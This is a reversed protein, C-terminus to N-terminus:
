SPHRGERRYTAPGVGRLQRFVRSFHHRDCFGRRQAITEVDLAPDELDLCAAAIRRALHWRHPTTGTEQRFRRIFATPHMGAEAALDAIAVATDAEALLELARAVAPGHGPRGLAEAPLRALSALAFAQAALDRHAGTTWAQRLADLAPDLPLTWIGPRAVVEAGECTLHLYAHRAPGTWRGHFVTEPAVVIIRDPGLDHIGGRWSVAWGPVANHYFRWYPRAVAEHRWVTLDAEARVLLHIRVAAAM